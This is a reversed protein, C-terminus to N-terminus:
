SCGSSECACSSGCRVESTHEELLVYLEWLNKDPDSVWVKNAVSFCCSTNAEELDVAIGSTELRERATAIDDIYKLQVGLHGDRGIANPVENLVLTVLPDELNFRATRGSRWTPEANMLVSYFDISRDLSSVELEIYPRVGIEVNGLQSGLSTFGRVSALTQSM